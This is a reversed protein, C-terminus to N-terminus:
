TLTPVLNWRQQFSPSASFFFFCTLSLFLSLVLWSHSSFSSTLFVTMTKIKVSDWRSRPYVTLLSLPLRVHSPASELSATEPLPIPTSPPFSQRAQPCVAHQRSRMGKVHSIHPPRLPIGFRQIDILSFSLPFFGPPRFIIV